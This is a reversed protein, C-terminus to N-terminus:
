FLKAASKEIWVVSQNQLILGVRERSFEGIRYKSGMKLNLDVKMNGLADNFVASIDSQLIAHTIKNQYANSQIANKLSFILFCGLLFGFILTIKRVMSNKSTITLWIIIAIFFASILACYTWNDVGFSFVRQEFPSLESALYDNVGLKAYCFQLNEKAGSFEPNIKMSKELAWIAEPYQKLAALSTGLNYLANADMPSKQVCKRFSIEAEQWKKSKAANVGIEFDTSFGILWFCFFFTSLFLNKM